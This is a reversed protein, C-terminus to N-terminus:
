GPRALKIAQDIAPIIERCYRTAIDRIIQAQEDNCPIMYGAFLVGELSHDIGTAKDIAERASSNGPIHERLRHYDNATIKISIQM